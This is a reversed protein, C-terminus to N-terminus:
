LRPRAGAGASSSEEALADGTLYLGQMPAEPMPSMPMEIRGSAM